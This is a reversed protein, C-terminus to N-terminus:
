CVEYHWHRRQTIRPYLANGACFFFSINRGSFGKTLYSSLFRSYAMASQQVRSTDGGDDIDSNDCVEPGDLQKDTLRLSKVRPTAYSEEGEKLEM